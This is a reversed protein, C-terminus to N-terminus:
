PKATKGHCAFCLYRSGGRGNAIIVDAAVIACQQCFPRPGPQSERPAAAWGCEPCSLAGAGAYTCRPCPRYEPLNYRQSGRRPHRPKPPLENVRRRLPM